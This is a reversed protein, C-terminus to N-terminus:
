QIACKKQPVEEPKSKSPVQPAPTTTPAIKYYKQWMEYTKCYFKAMAEIAESVNINDKASTEYYGIIKERFKDLFDNIEALTPADNKPATNKADSKTGILVVVANECQTLVKPLLQHLQFLSTSDTLDFVAFICSTGRFHGGHFSDRNIDFIQM